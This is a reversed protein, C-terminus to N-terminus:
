PDFECIYCHSTGPHYISPSNAFDVFYGDLFGIMTEQTQGNPDSPGWNFYSLDVKKTGYQGMYWTYHTVIGPTDVMGCTWCIECLSVNSALLDKILLYEAQSEVAVLHSLPHLSQCFTQLQTFTQGSIAYDLYYCTNLSSQHIFPSPCPNM